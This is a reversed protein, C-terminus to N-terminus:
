TSPSSKTWSFGAAQHRRKGCAQEHHMAQCAGTQRQCAPWGIGLQWSGGGAPGRMMRGMKACSTRWSPSAMTSCLCPCPSPAADRPAHAPRLVYQHKSFQRAM